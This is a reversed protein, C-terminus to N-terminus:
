AGAATRRRAEHRCPHVSVPAPAERWGTSKATHAASPEQCGPPAARADESWKETPSSTPKRSIISSTASQPERAFCERGRVMDRPLSQGRVLSRWPIKEHADRQQSASVSRGDGGSCNLHATVSGSGSSGAGGASGGHGSSGGSSGASGGGGGGGSSRPPRASRRHRTCDPVRISRRKRRRLLRRRRLPLRRNSGERGGPCVGGGGLHPQYSCRSCVDLRLPQELHPAAEDRAAAAVGADCTRSM